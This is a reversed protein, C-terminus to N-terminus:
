LNRRERWRRGWLANAFHHFQRACVRYSQVHKDGLKGCLHHPDCEHAANRDGDFFQVGPGFIESANDIMHSWTYAVSFIIPGARKSLSAQLAYYTSLGGNTIALIDGHSNDLRNALCTDGTPLSFPIYACKTLDQTQIYGGFPNVDIRQYLKTGKSGVGDVELLMRHPLEQQVGLTFNQVYPNVLHPDVTNRSSCQIIPISGAEEEQQYSSCGSVDVGQLSSLSLPANPFVGTTPVLIPLNPFVGAPQAPTEGIYGAGKATITYVFPSVPGSQWILLPINLVMPSYSIAYGGRVVINRAKWPSWAFGFRPALNHHDTSVSPVAPNIQHLGNIPQGYVEYRLGLNLTFNPKLRFDDQFFSFVDLERLPMEPPTPACKFVYFDSRLGTKRSPM